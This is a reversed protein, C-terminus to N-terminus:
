SIGIQPSKPVQAGGFEIGGTIEIGKYDLDKASSLVTYSGTRPNFVLIGEFKKDKGSGQYRVMLFKAYAKVFRDYDIKNGVIMKKVYPALEEETPTNDTFAIIIADTLFASVDIKLGKDILENLQRIFRQNLSYSNEGALYSKNGLDKFHKQLVNAGIHKEKVTKFLKPTPSTSLGKPSLRGGKSSKNSAKLEFKVGTKSDQLDGSDGAKTIPNGLLILGVEGPGWAGATTPPRAGMLQDRFLSYIEKYQAPIFQDIKATKGKGAELIKGWDVIGEKAGNLFAVLKDQFGKDAIRDAKFLEGTFISNIVQRLVDITKKKTAVEGKITKGTAYSNADVFAQESSTIKNTLAVITSNYTKLFDRLEARGKELGTAVGSKEAYAKIDNLQKEIYQKIKPDSATPGLKKIMDDLKSKLLVAMQDPSATAVQPQESLNEQKQGLAKNAYDIVKQFVNKVYDQLKPDSKALNTLQDIKQDIPATVDEKLFWPTEASERRMFRHLLETYLRKYMEDSLEGKKVRSQLDEVGALFNPYSGVNPLKIVKDDKKPFPVVDGEKMFWPQM